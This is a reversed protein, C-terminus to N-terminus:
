MLMDQYRQLIARKYETFPNDENKNQTISWVLAGDRFLTDCFIEIPLHEISGGCTRECRQACVYLAIQDIYLRAHGRTLNMSLFTGLETLFREAAPMRRFTTVGALYRHWLPEYPARVLGIDGCRELAPGLDGRLLSDADLMVIRTDTTLLLQYLRVFRACSCYLTKGGYRDFDVAEWTVSLPLVVISQLRRLAAWAESAPNFLHLHIAGNRCKEGVSCVLAIGYELFYNTDCCIFYILGDSRFQPFPLGDIAPLIEPHRAHAQDPGCFASWDFVPDLAPIGCNLEFQAAIICLDNAGAFAEAGLNRAIRAAALAHQSDDNLTYLLALVAQAYGLQPDASVTQEILYIASRVRRHLILLLAWNLLHGSLAPNDVWGQGSIITLDVGPKLAPLTVSRLRGLWDPHAKTWPLGEDSFSNAHTAYRPFARSYLLLADDERQQLLRADGLAALYLQNGPVLEIARELFRAGLDANGSRCALLGLLYCADALQPEFKLAAECLVRAEPYKGMAYCDLASHLKSKAIGFSRKRWARILDRLIKVLM